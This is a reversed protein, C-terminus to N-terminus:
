YKYIKLERTYIRLISIEDETLEGKSLFVQTSDWTKLVFFNNREHVAKFQKWYFTKHFTDGIINITHDDIEINNEENLLVSSFYQRRVKILIAIFLFLIISIISLLFLKIAFTDTKITHNYVNALIIEALLLSNLLYPNLLINSLTIKLFDNFVLKSKLMFSFDSYETTKILNSIKIIKIGKILRSILSLILTSFLIIIIISDSLVPAAEFFLLFAAFLVILIFFSRTIIILWGKRIEETKM